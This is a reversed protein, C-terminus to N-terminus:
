EPEFNATRLLGVARETDARMFPVFEEITM